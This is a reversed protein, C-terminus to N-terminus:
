AKARVPRLLFAPLHGGGGESAHVPKPTATKPPGPKHAAHKHPPPHPAAPKHAAPKHARRTHTDEHRASRAEEHRAKPAGSRSSSKHREHPRDTGQRTVTPREDAPPRPPEAMWPI